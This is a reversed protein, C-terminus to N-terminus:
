PTSGSDLCNPPLVAGTISPILNTLTAASWSLRHGRTHRQRIVKSIQGEELGCFISSPAVPPADLCSLLLMSSMLTSCIVMLALWTVSSTGLCASVCLFARERMTRTRRSSLSYAGLISWYWIVFSHLSHSVTSTFHKPLYQVGLHDTPLCIWMKAGIRHIM